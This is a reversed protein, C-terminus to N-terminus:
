ISTIVSASITQFYTPIIHVLQLTNLLSMNIIASLIQLIWRYHEVNLYTSLQETVKTIDAFYISTKFMKICSKYVTRLDIEFKVSIIM